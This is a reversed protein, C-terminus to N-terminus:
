KVMHEGTLCNGVIACFRIQQAPQFHWINSPPTQKTDSTCFLILHSVLLNLGYLQLCFHCSLSDQGTVGTKREKEDGIAKYIPFINIATLHALSCLAKKKRTQTHTKLQSREVSCEMATFCNLWLVVETWSIFCLLNTCYTQWPPPVSCAFVGWSQRM